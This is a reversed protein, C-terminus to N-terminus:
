KRTLKCKSRKDCESSCYDFNDRELCAKLCQRHQIICKERLENRKNVPASHITDYFHNCLLLTIVTLKIFLNNSEAYM